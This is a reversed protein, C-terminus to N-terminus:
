IDLNFSSGFKEYLPKFLKDSSSRVGTYIHILGQTEM